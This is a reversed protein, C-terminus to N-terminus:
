GRTPRATEPRAMERRPVYYTSKNYGVAKLRGKEVMSSLDRKATDHTVNNLRQYTANTLKKTRAAYQMANAQRANLDPMAAQEDTLVVADLKKTWGFKKAVLEIANAGLMACLVTGVGAGFKLADMSGLLLGGTMGFVVGAFLEFVVKAPSMGGAAPAGCAKYMSYFLRIFSGALAYLLLAIFPAFPALLELM